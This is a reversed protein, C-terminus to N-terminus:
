KSALLAADAQQHLTLNLAVLYRRYQKPSLISKVNALNFFLAKQAAKQDGEKLAIELKKASDTSINEMLVRQEYNAQVYATVKSFVSQDKLMPLVQYDSGESAFASLSFAVVAVLSLFLKKM